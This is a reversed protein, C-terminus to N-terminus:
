SSCPSFHRIILEHVDTSASTHTQNSTLSILKAFFHIVNTRFNVCATMLMTKWIQIDVREHLFRLWRTENRLISWCNWLNFLKHLLVNQTKCMEFDYLSMHNDESTNKRVLFHHVFQHVVYVGSAFRLGYVHYVISNLRLFLYDSIFVLDNRIVILESLLVSIPIGHIRFCGCVIMYYVEIFKYLCHDSIIYRYCDKLFFYERMSQHSCLFLFSMVFLFLQM